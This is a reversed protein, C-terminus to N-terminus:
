RRGKQVWQGSDLQIWEGEKASDRNLGAMIKEIKGLDGERFSENIEVIRQYLIKRDENEEEMVSRALNEAEPDERFEPVDFFELYGGSTEGLAGIAKFREIDDRNFLSRQMARVAKKKGEPLPPTPVLRGEKDISRVSALLVLDGGIEQYSGLVQNELATRQDVVDVKVELLRACSVASLALSVSVAM